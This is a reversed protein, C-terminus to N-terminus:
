PPLCETDFAFVEVLSFKVLVDWASEGSEPGCHRPNAFTRPM